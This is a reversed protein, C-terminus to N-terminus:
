FKGDRLAEETTGTAEADAQQMRKLADITQQQDVVKQEAQGAKEATSARNQLFTGFMMSVGKLVLDIIWSM